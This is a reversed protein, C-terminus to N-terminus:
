RAEAAELRKALEYDAYAAEYDGRKKYVSMRIYLPVPEDPDLKIASTADNFAADFDKIELYCSARMILAPAGAHLRVANSFDNIAKRHHGDLYFFRGRLIFAIASDSDSAIAQNFDNIAGERDGTALRSTGRSAHVEGLKFNLAIVASFDTIASEHLDALQKSCGRALLLQAVDGHQDIASDLVAIAQAHLGRDNLSMANRIASSLDTTSQAVVVTTSPLALVATVIVSFIAITKTFM